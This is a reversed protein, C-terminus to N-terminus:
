RENRFFQKITYMAIFSGSVKSKFELFNETIETRKLHFLDTREDNFGHIITVASKYGCEKVNKIIDNNYEGAPYCFHKIEYGVMKEIEAKSSKIETEFEESSSLKTLNPHNKTHSGIELIRKDLSQIDKWKAFIFENPFVTAEKDNFQKLHNVRETDPLTRLKKKIDLITDEYSKKDELTYYIKKGEFIFEFKGIGSNRIVTEVYDTWLLENSDILGSVLYFCGKANFEKMIPYANTVINKYGDDFTLVVMKKIKKKSKLLDILESMTLFNYGKKKLFILQKRFNSKQIHREDYGSLLTFTDDCIGHYWLIIANNRNLFRFLINVGCIDILKLLCKQYLKM